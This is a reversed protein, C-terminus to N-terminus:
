EIRYANLAALRRNSMEEVQKNQYQKLESQCLKLEQITENVLKTKVICHKCSEM